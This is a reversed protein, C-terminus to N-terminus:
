MVLPSGYMTFQPPHVVFNIGEYQFILVFASGGEFHGFEEGKQLRIGQTGFSKLRATTKLGGFELPKFKEDMEEKRITEGIYNTILSSDFKICISGVKYSGFAVFWFKGHKWDGSLIVRENYFVNPLNYISKADLDYMTGPIHLREKVIWDVPSRFRHCESVPLHISIFHLSSAMSRLQEMEFWSLGLIQDVPYTINKIQHIKWGYDSVKGVSLITGDVPAVLDVHSIPRSRIERIFFEHITRYSDLSTATAEYLRASTRKAYYGIIMHRLFRPIPVHSLYGLFKGISRSFYYWIIIQIFNLM